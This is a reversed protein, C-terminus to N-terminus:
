KIKPQWLFEKSGNIYNEWRAVVFLYDSFRNLFILIDPMGKNCIKREVRRCISRSNHLYSSEPCGGPLIFSSLPPLKESLYDIQKEFLVTTKNLLRSLNKNNFDQLSIKAGIDFLIGQINHFDKRYARDGKMNSLYLGISSNLEDIEGIIDIWKSNKEVKGGLANHTYGGDGSKTYLKKIHVIKSSIPVGM